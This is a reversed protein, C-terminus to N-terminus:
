EDVIETRRPKRDDSRVRIADMRGEQRPQTKFALWTVTIILAATLIIM